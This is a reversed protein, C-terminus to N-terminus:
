NEEFLANVSVFSLTEGTTMRLLDNAELLSLEIFSVKGKFSDEVAQCTTPFDKYSLNLRDRVEQKLRLELDRM